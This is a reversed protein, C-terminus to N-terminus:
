DALGFRWLHPTGILEGVELEIEPTTAWLVDPASFPALWADELVYRGLEQAAADSEDAPAELVRDVLEQGEADVYDGANWIGDSDLFNNLVSLYAENYLIVPTTGSTSKTFFDGTDSTEEITVRIGIDALSQQVIPTVENIGLFTTSYLTLDFGDPYGAEALLERAREPDYDYFDDAGEIYQPTGAPASQSTVTGRGLNLTDNIAERDFAMNIAQRVRLDGIPPLIAGARDAFYLTVFRGAGSHIAFGQAEAEIANPTTLSTADIQGAKLANLAAVDDSFLVLKVTDFPYSEPTWYDPNRVLSISVEPVIEDILYPGSGLPSDVLAERDDDIAAASPIVVLVGFMHIYEWNMPRSTRLEFTYEGTVTLEPESKTLFAGFPATEDALLAEYFAVVGDADMHTDDVFTVDDRLVMSLVKRDDSLSFESALWPLFEDTTDDYRFLGEYVASVDTSFYANLGAFPDYNVNLSRVGITISSPGDDEAPPACATLGAITAAAAVVVISARSLSRM